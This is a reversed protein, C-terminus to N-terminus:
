KPTRHFANTAWIWRNHLLPRQEPIIARWWANMIINCQYGKSVLWELCQEELIKSHTEILLDVPACSLLREGSELVDMEYGEVDIKVFGRKDKELELADLSLYDPHNATGVYKPMVIIRKSIQEKNLVLNSKLIDIESTQPEFAIIKKAQTNKLFYLCLEGGGAGIDIMWLYHQSLKTIYKYTEREYLGLYFQTHDQLDLNLVLNRFLGVYIRYPRRGKGRVVLQKVTSLPRLRCSNLSM